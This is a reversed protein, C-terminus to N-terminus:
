DFDTDTDEGGPGSEGAGKDKELEKAAIVDDIRLIMIAAEAASNIAQTKVKLPELVGTKDLDEVKGTFVNLGAYKQGNEHAARLDVLADIPDLGSNEALTRPIIELGEAFANVALQERGKLSAAYERLRLSVEVEPSGGGAVVKGTELAAAVVHVADNLSREIEDVVHETGGRALITVARPNKCERIFVMEEDGIKKEEVLGAEGLDEPSLDKLNSIIKAGTAKAIKEIDSQKVRRVALIGAKALYYQALDDIGKQCMVVNAGAEVLKDVMEKLMAEEQEIFAKLQDPSTIQIEADTETEKVELEMKLVAIKADKVKKPMGPHVVEKDIVIGDILETDEVAGGVKKEIKIDDVDVEYLGDSREAVKKVARVVVDTLVEEAYEANKGTISTRAVKKLIDENEVDVKIAMEDLIEMAKQAAMRYGRAVVTPHVDQEILEEAKKLLEGALVVATTTGDGVEDDQTKAVEVMMKAAPHEVDIEDLITAGDNTIVVDGLTDVLMKDMGRPGLTTRVAEAIIKAAMINSRQADRGVTRQTGEKLILVPTGQLTAV